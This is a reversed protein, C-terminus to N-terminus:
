KFKEDLRIFRYKREILLPLVIRLIEPTGPRTDHFLIIDGNQVDELMMEVIKDPNFEKRYDYSDLSWHVTYGTKKNIWGRYSKTEKGYPPRCFSVAPQGSTEKILDDTKNFGYIVETEPLTDAPVHKYGHNGLCHGNNVISKVLGPTSEIAPGSLFFTASISYEKLVALVQPTIVPEPGDDFTLALQKSFSNNIYIIRRTIYQLYYFLIRLARHYIRKILIM